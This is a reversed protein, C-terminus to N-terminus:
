RTASSASVGSRSVRQEMAVAACRATATREAARARQVDADTASRTEGALDKVETAVVAFGRGAEGARAAEITANLALLNTQEAISTIVKIVEGIEESSQGLREITAQTSTAAATADDAVRSAEATTSAIERISAAMEETSAAM